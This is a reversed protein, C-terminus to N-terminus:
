YKYQNFCNWECGLSPQRMVHIQVFRFLLTIYTDWFNEFSNRGDVEDKDPSPNLSTEEDCIDGCAVYCQKALLM